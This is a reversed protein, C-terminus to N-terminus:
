TILTATTLVEEKRREKKRGDREGEGLTKHGCRGKETLRMMSLLTWRLVPGEGIPDRLFAEQSPGICPTNSADV